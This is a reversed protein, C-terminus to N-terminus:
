QTIKKKKKLNFAYTSSDFDLNPQGPKYLKTLKLMDVVKENQCRGEYYFLGVTSIFPM